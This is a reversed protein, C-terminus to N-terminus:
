KILSKILKSKIHFVPIPNPNNLEEESSFYLKTDNKM